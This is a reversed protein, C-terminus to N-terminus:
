EGIIADYRVNKPESDSALDLVAGSSFQLRRWVRSRDSKLRQRVPGGWRGVRKSGRSAGRGM